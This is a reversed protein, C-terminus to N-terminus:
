FSYGLRFEGTPWLGSFLRKATVVHGNIEASNSTAYYGLGAGLMMNFGSKFVWHYGSIGGVSFSRYSISGFSEKWSIPLIQAYPSVYWGSTLREKKPYYNLRGGVGLSSIQTSESSFHFITTYLGVTMHNSIAVDFEGDFFGLPMLIPNVTLNYTRTQDESRSQTSTVLASAFVTQSVLMLGVWCMLTCKNIMKVM